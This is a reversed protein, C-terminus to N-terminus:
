SKLFALFKKLGASYMSHGIKDFSSKTVRDIIRELVATDLVQYMNDTWGTEERIIVQVSLSNPTDVSYKKITRESLFQEKMYCVFSQEVSEVLAGSSVSYSQEQISDVYTFFQALSLGFFSAIREVIEVSVSRHGCELNSIYHQDVGCQNSLQEQSLHRNTRLQRIVVGIRENTTM